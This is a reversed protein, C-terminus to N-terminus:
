ELWGLHQAWWLILGITLALELISVFVLGGVRKKKPVPVYRDREMEYEEDDFGASRSSFKQAARRDDFDTSRPGNLLASLEDDDIDEDEADDYFEELLEDFEDEEPDPDSVALLQQELRELEKKPNDFM